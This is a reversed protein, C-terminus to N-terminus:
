WWYIRSKHSWVWHCTEQFWRTAVNKWEFYKFNNKGNSRKIRLTALFSIENWKMWFKILVRNQRFSVHCWMVVCCKVNVTSWAQCLCLRWLNYIHRPYRYWQQISSIPLKTFATVDNQVPPVHFSDNRFTLVKDTPMRTNESKGSAEDWTHCSRM